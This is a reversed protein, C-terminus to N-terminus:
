RLARRVHSGILPRYYSQSVWVTKVYLQTKNLSLAYYTVTWPRELINIVVTCSNIVVIAAGAIPIITDHKGLNLGLEGGLFEHM